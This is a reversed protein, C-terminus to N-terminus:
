DACTCHLHLRTQSLAAKFSFRYPRVGRSMNIKSSRRTRTQRVTVPGLDTESDHCKRSLTPNECPVPRDRTSTASWRSSAAATSVTTPLLRVGAFALVIGLIVGATVGGPGVAVDGLQWSYLVIPFRRQAIFPLILLLLTNVWWLYALASLVVAVPFRAIQYWALRMSGPPTRVGIDMGNLSLLRRRDIRGTRDPLRIVLARRAAETGPIPALVKDAAVAVVAVPFLCAGLLASAVLSATGLWTRRSFPALLVATVVEGPHAQGAADGVGGRYAAM